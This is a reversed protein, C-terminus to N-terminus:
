GAIRANFNKVAPTPTAMAKVLRGFYASHYVERFVPIRAFGNVLGLWRHRRSDFGLARTRFEAFDSARVSREFQSISYKNLYEGPRDHLSKINRWRLSPPSSDWVTPTYYPKDVIRRVADLIQRDSFFVTSFPIPIISALHSAQHHYWGWTSFYCVGGPKLLRCAQNLTELPDTVHELSDVLIAIDYSEGGASCDAASQHKFIINSSGAKHALTRAQEIEQENIDIGVVSKAGHDALFCARGGLGCGIDIVDVGQCREMLDFFKAFYASSTTYQWDWYHSSSIRRDDSSPQRKKNRARHISDAIYFCISM